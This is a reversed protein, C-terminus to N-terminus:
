AVGKALLPLDDRVITFVEGGDTTVKTFRVYTGPELSATDGPEYHILWLNGDPNPSAPEIQSPDASSKTILQAADDDDAKVAHEVTWATTGGTPPNGASDTITLRYTRNDGIYLPDAM